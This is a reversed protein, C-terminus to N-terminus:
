LQGPAPSYPLTTTATGFGGSLRDFLVDGMLEITGWTSGILSLAKNPKLSVLPFITTWIPGIDNAGVFKVSGYIVPDAFIDITDPVPSPGGTPLGLLAFGMNRATWEELVMSLTGSLETVATFDKVKVGTMSSYHDLQTVKATFEFQPCNGVPTYVSEGLLQIYVEGKGIYYNGINPSILSGEIDFAPNQTDPM